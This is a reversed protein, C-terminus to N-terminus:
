NVIPYELKFSSFMDGIQELFAQLNWDLYIGKWALIVFRLSEFEM